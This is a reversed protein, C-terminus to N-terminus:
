FFCFVLVILCVFLVFLLLLFCVFLFGLGTNISFLTAFGQYCNYNSTKAGCPTAMEGRFNDHVKRARFNVAQVEKM